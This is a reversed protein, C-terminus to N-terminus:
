MAIPYCFALQSPLRQGGPCRAARCGKQELDDAFYGFLAREEVHILGDGLQVLACELKRTIRRSPNASVQAQSCVFHHM